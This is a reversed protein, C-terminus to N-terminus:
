RSCQTYTQIVNCSSHESWCLQSYGNSTGSWGPHVHTGGFLEPTVRILQSLALSSVSEANVVGLVSLFLCTLRVFPKACTAAVPSPANVGSSILRSLWEVSITWFDALSSREFIWSGSMSALGRAPNWVPIAFFKPLKTLTSDLM